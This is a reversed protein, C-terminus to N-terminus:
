GLGRFKNLFKLRPGAKPILQSITGEDLLLFSEEDIGEDKFRDILDTLQWQTLTDCVFDDMSRPKNNNSTGHQDECDM